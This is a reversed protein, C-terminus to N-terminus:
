DGEKSGEHTSDDTWHRLFCCDDILQELIDEKM